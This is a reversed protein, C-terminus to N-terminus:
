VRLLQKHECQAVPLETAKGAMRTVTPSELGPIAATSQAQTWEKPSSVGSPHCLQPTGLVAQLPHHQSPAWWPNTPTSCGSGPHQPGVPPRPM